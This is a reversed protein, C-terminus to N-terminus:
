RVLDEQGGIQALIAFPPPIMAALGGSGASTKASDTLDDYLPQEAVADLAFASVESLIALAKHTEIKLESPAATSEPSDKLSKGSSKKGNGGKKTSVAVPAAIPAKALFTLWLPKLKDIKTRVAERVVAALQKGNSGEVERDVILVVRRLSVALSGLLDLLFVVLSNDRKSTVSGDAKPTEIVLAASNLQSVIRATLQELLLSCIPWKPLM